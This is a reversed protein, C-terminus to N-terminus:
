NNLLSPEGPFEDMTVVSTSQSSSSQVAPPPTLESETPCRLAALPDDLFDPHSMLHKVEEKTVGNNRLVSIPNARFAADQSLIDIEQNTMSLSDLMMLKKRSEANKAQLAAIRQITEFDEQNEEFARKCSELNQRGLQITDAMAKDAREMQAISIRNMREAAQLRELVEKNERVQERHDTFSTERRVKKYRKSRKKSSRCKKVFYAMLILAIISLLILVTKDMVRM